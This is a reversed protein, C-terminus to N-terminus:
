WTRLRNIPYNDFVKRDEETMQSYLQEFLIGNGLLIAAGAKTSTTIGSDLIFKNLAEMDSLSLKGTRKKIQMENLTYVAQCDFTTDNRLLWHTLRYAADLLNKKKELGDNISDASKIMELVDNNAMEYIIHENKPLNDYAAIMGGFDINDCAAWRGISSLYSYVTAPVFANKSSRCGLQMSGDFANGILYKGEEKKVAWILFRLDLFELIVPGSGVSKLNCCKGQLMVEILSTISLVDSDSLNNITLDGSYGIKALAKVLDHWQPLMEKYYDCIGASNDSTVNLVMEGLRLQQSNILALIFEAEKISSKLTKAQQHFTVKPEFDNKSLNYSLNIMGGGVDIKMLEGEVTTQFGDFFAREDVVVPAKVFKSFNMTVPSYGIPWEIGEKVQGYIFTPHTSLYSFLKFPNEQYPASFSFKRINQKGLDEINFPKANGVVASIQKKCDGNFRILFQEFEAVPMDLRRMKVNITKQNRHGNLIKKITLPYLDRYFVRKGAETIQIVFYLIGETLYALLDPVEIPYSYDNKFANMVRGKVQVPIRCLYDVKACDGKGYVYLYGDWSMEKDNSNMKPDIIDSEELYGNLENIAKQEIKISNM